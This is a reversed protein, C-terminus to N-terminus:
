IELIPIVPLPIALLKVFIVYVGVSFIVAVLVNLKWKAKGNLAFLISLMFIITSLVYGIHEFLLAYVVGAVCTITILKTSHSIGEKKDNTKTVLPGKKIEKLYLIIGFIIMAIGLGLPYRVPAMPDGISARPLLYAGISYIAGLIVAAIGTIAPYNM